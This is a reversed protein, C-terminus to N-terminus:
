HAHASKVRGVWKQDIGAELLRDRLQGAHEQVHRINMIQHDLKPMKYWPIGCESATLDMADLQPDVKRDVIDLYELIDPKSYPTADLKEREADSEVDDRHKDWAKFDSEKQEMYLHTFFLTHYALRWFQRPPTGSDWLAEPCTEVVERLMALAAHYQGKLADRVQDM